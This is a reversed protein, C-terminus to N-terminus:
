QETLSVSSAEESHVAAQAATQVATKAAAEAQADREFTNLLRLSEDRSEQTTAPLDAIVKEYLAKAQVENRIAREEEAKIRELSQERIRDQEKQTADIIENIKEPSLIVAHHILFDLEAKIAGEKAELQQLEAAYTKEDTSYRFMTANLQHVDEDRALAAMLLDKTEARKIKTEELAKTVIKINWDNLLLLLELSAIQVDRSNVSRRPASIKKLLTDLAASYDAPALLNGMEELAKIVMRVASDLASVDQTVPINKDLEAQIADIIGFVEDVNANKWAEGWQGGRIKERIVHKLLEFSTKLSANSEYNANILDNLTDAATKEAPQANPQAAPRAFMNKLGGILSGITNKNKAM